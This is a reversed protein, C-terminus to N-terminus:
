INYKVEILATCMDSVSQRQEVSVIKVHEFGNMNNVNRQQRNKSDFIGMKICMKIEIFNFWTLDVIEIKTKRDVKLLQAIYHINSRPIRQKQM